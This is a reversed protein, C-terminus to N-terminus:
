KLTTYKSSVWGTISGYKVKYWVVGRDDVSSQDLYTASADQPMTGIDEGSLSPETRINSRGGTSVVKRGSSPLSPWFDSSSDSSSNASGGRQVTYRSSVWGTITDYSIWYWTVGRDDVSSVGLYNAREGKPLTGLDEGSLSPESRINSSGKEGMVDGNVSNFSASGSLSTYMSSVWGTKSGYSIKYWVVGRFDTSSEGLYTASSGKPLTGLDKGSLSPSSRIFSKGDVGVVSEALAPVAFATLVVSLVLMMLVCKSFLHKM